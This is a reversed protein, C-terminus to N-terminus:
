NIGPDFNVNASRSGPMLSPSTRNQIDCKWMRPPLLSTQRYTAPQPKPKQETNKRADETTKAEATLISATM